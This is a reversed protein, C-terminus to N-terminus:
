AATEPMSEIADLDEFFDINEIVDFNEVLEINEVFEIEEVTLSSIVSEIKVASFINYLTVSMVLMVIFAMALAPSFRKDVLAPSIAQAFREYWPRQLSVREWFREVYGPDPDADPWIKLVNWAKAYAKFEARCESCRALHQGVSAAEQPTLVQDMWEPIREKIQQCDM